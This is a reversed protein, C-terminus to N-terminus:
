RNQIETDYVVAMIQFIDSIAIEEAQQLLARHLFPCLLSDLSPQERLTVPKGRVEPLVQSSVPRSFNLGPISHLSFKIEKHNFSVIFVEYSLQLLKSFHM